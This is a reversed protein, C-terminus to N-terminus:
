PLGFAGADALHGYLGEAEGVHGLAPLEPAAAGGGVDPRPTSRTQQRQEVSDTWILCYGEIRSGECTQQRKEVSDPPPSPGRHKRRRQPTPSCRGHCPGVRLRCRGEGERWRVRELYIVWGGSASEGV